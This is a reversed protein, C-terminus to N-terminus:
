INLSLSGGTHSFFDPRYPNLKVTFDKGCDENACTIEITTDITGELKINEMQENLHLLDVLPINEIDKATPEQNDILKIALKVSETILKDQKDTSIKLMEYIDRLYPPKLEVTKNSKPLLIVKKAFLEEQSVPFLELSALDLKLNKHHHSCHSCIAEHFFKPGFTNERLKILITEIDGNPIRWIGDKAIDGKWALGQETEFSLVVDGLIKSIHGINNLVLNQDALYNQQKGRLEDIVCYNFLDLGDIFGNPLQIRM